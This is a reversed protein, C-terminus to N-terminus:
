NSANACSARYAITTTRGLWAQFLPRIEDDIVAIEFRDGRWDKYASVIKRHGYGALKAIAPSFSKGEISRGSKPNVL